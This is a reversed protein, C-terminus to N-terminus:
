PKTPCHPQIEAARLELHTVGWEQLAALQLDLEPAIEDSFGSLIIHEM